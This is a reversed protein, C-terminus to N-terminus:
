RGLGIPDEGKDLIRSVWNDCIITSTGGPQFQSLFDEPSHSVAVVSNTWIQHLTSKCTTYQDPRNWNVNTEPLCIVVPGYDKCTHLDQRLSPVTTYHSVM